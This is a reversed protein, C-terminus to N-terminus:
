SLEEESAWKEMMRMCSQTPRFKDLMDTRNEFTPFKWKCGDCAMGQIVYLECLPCHVYKKWFRDSWHSM